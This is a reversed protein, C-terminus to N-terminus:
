ALQQAKFQRHCAIFGEMAKELAERSVSGKTMGDAIMDRTDAWALKLIGRQLQQRYWRLHVVLSNEAPVKLTPAVIASTVSMADLVIHLDIPSRTDGTLINRAESESLSNQHLEHLALRTLTTADVADTSAFLESAFTSRTVHRQSKSACEIVHCKLDVPTSAGKYLQNVDSTTMRVALMGRVSLGSDSKAQFGSDSYVVLSTPYEMKRYVLKRPNQKMWRVLHNLRKVHIPQAIHSIRQLATVYVAIDLRTLLAYAVTMLLSLFQRRVDEALYEEKMSMPTVTMEKIAAIFSTQDLTIAEATQQHRIGCFTFNEFELDLKGFAKSLYEVLELVLKKPGAIKLDDVHKLLLLCIKGNSDLLYELESDMLTSKLGYKATAKRLKMSWARPADRCGTGPKTCRLVENAPNFNEFGPLQRLCFVPQGCLEFSVQREPRGTEQALEAYTVGQLFAKPIDTSGLIWGRVVTESVLLRQSLRTATPSTNVDDDAGTDKFGRICLRARIFRKGGKIKWKYVWKVDIVNHAQHRPQREFCQYGQWVKLEDLIAQVLEPAHTVEEEKTLLDDSRDIVAKRTHTQYIRLEVHEHPGPLRPLGEIVKCMNGYAELAVYSGREDEDISPNSDRLADQLSDAFAEEALFSKQTEAEVEYWEPVDAEAAAQLSALNTKSAELDPLEQTDKHENFCVFAEALEQIAPHSDQVGFVQNLEQFSVLADESGGENSGEPITSLPGGVSMSRPTTNSTSDNTDVDMAAVDAHGRHSGILWEETDPAQLCQIFRTNVWESGALGSFSVNTSQSQFFQLAKTGPATWHITLSGTYEEKAPIQKVGLGCRAAVINTINFVNKAVHMIAAFLGQHQKTTNSMCWEGKQNRIQGLTIVTGKKFQDIAEQAIQQAHNSNKNIISPSAWYALCRRVDQVRCTIVNDARTRIGIRGHELRSTLDVVTAPGRWGSSEKGEPPRFYEVAEGVKLELEEGSVRTPTHLARKMRERATGEVIAQIAIERLRHTHASSPAGASDDSVAIADPMIPPVRGLVATFPSYGNVTTLANTAYVAESLIRTIPVRLGEESMQSQIKHMTDRLVQTRRDVIRTHQGVAAERKTIGKIEFYMRAEDDKLGQEGDFILVQPPGFTSLWQDFGQLIQSTTKDQLLYAAAWRTGRDVMHLITHMKDYRYFVLDGEVEVNFGTVIRSSAVTDAIPRTWLRCIRCTDVIGDILDLTAKPIGAKHLVAKMRHASIHWWRVHLKRLIRRQGDESSFKIGRLSSGVDFSSWDNPVPTQTEGEDFTRRIRQELDPGRGARPADEIAPIPEELSDGPAHEDPLASPQGAAAASSSAPEAADAAAASAEDAKGLESAKLKSTPEEEAPVRSFPRRRTGTRGTTLAHRCDPGYDHLENSRPLGKM